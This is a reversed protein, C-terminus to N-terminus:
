LFKFIWLLVLIYCVSENVGYVRLVNFYVIDVVVSGFEFLGVEIFYILFFVFWIFGFYFLVM